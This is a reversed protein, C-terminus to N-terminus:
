FELYFIFLMFYFNFLIIFIILYKINAVTVHVLNVDCIM